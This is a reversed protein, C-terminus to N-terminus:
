ISEERPNFVRPPPPPRKMPPLPPPIIQVNLDGWEKLSRRFFTDKLLITSRKRVADDVADELKEALRRNTSSEARSRGPPM